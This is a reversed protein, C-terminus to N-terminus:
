KPQAGGSGGGATPSSPDNPMAAAIAKEVDSWRMLPRAQFIAKEDAIQIELTTIRDGISLKLFSVDGHLKQLNIKESEMASVRAAATQMIVRQVRLQRKEKGNSKKNM